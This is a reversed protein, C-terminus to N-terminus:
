QIHIFRVQLCTSLRNSIILIIISNILNLKNFYLHLLVPEIVFVCTTRLYVFVYNCIIIIIIIIIIITIIITTSIQKEDPIDVVSYKIFAVCCRSFYQRKNSGNRNM